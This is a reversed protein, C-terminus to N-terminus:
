KGVLFLTSPKQNQDFAVEITCYGHGTSELIARYVNGDAHDAAQAKAPLENVDGYPM